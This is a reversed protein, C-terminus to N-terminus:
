GKELEAPLRTWGRTTHQHHRKSDSGIRYSPFRRFLEEFAIRGELRALPAGICHHIGEGFGLHRKPEREFDLQDPNEFRREDHNAAGFCLWVRSGTPITGGAIDVDELAIRAEGQVPAEWRVLEETARTAFERDEAIRRRDDPRECLRHLGNSVLCATTDVGAMVLIFTMGRAEEPELVGEDEARLLASLLDDGPAARRAAIEENIFAALREGAERAAAPVEFYDSRDDEDPERTEFDFLLDALPDQEEEPFGLMQSVTAVPIRWAFDAALDAEAGEEFRDLLRNVIARIMPELGAVAQPTFHQQVARRIRRHDPPDTIVINGPGFTEPYFTQTADLEVGSGSSLSEWNRAGEQCDDFRSLTWFDRAANYYLPHEDRLVKYKPYPDEFIEPAFPDYIFEQNKTGVSM